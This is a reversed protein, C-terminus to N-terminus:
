EKRNSFNLKDYFLASYTIISIDDGEGEGIFFLVFLVVVFRIIFMTHSIMERNRQKYSNKDRESTCFSKELNRESSDHSTKTRIDKDTPVPSLKVLCSETYVLCCWYLSMTLPPPPIPSSTTDTSRPPPPNNNSLLNLHQSLKSRSM